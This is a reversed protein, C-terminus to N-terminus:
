LGKLRYITTVIYGQTGYTNSYILNSYIDTFFVKAAVTVGSFHLKNILILIVTGTLRHLGVPM